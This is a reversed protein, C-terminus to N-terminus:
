ASISRRTAASRAIVSKHLGETASMCTGYQNQFLQLFAVIKLKTIVNGLKENCQM